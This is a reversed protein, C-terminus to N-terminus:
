DSILEGAFCTAIAESFPHLMAVNWESRRNDHIEVWMQRKSPWYTLELIGAQIGQKLHYHISGKKTSLTTKQIINLNFQVIIQEIQNIISGIDLEEVEIHKANIIEVKLM